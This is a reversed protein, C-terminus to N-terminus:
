RRYCETFPTLNQLNKLRSLLTVFPPSISIVHSEPFRRYILEVNGMLEKMWIGEDFQGKDAQFALHDRHGWNRVRGFSPITREHQVDTIYKLQKKM